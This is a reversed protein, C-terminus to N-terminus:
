RNIENRLLQMFEKEYRVSDSPTSGKPLYGKGASAEFLVNISKQPGYGSSISRPSVIGVASLYAERFKHWSLIIIGSTGIGIFVEPHNSKGEKVIWSNYENKTLCITEFKVEIGFHHGGNEFYIIDGKIKKTGDPNIFDPVIKNISFLRPLLYVAVFHHEGPSRVGNLGNHLLFRDIYETYTAIM